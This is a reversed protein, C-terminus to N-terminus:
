AAAGEREQAGPKLRLGSYLDAYREAMAPVAYRLSRKHARQALLARESLDRTLRNIEFVWEEPDRPDAFQACGDWIERLSPIDSLVLCCRSRAAELVSLGFPEYLAPHLFISATQFKRILSSRSLHGLFDLGEVATATGGGAVEVPWLLSPAIRQLLALNKAEDSFRGAAFCFPLKERSSQEPLSAANPIVHVSAAPVGYERQLCAAMARSPAVIAGAHGLGNTVADRYWSWEAGPSCGNVARWWSYVCSHAVCVVPARWNLAAHAYGNLHVIDPEFSRELERLWAGSKEFEAEAGPMWELAFDSEVLTIGSIVLQDRQPVSPRPGMTALLVQVGRASLAAALDISYQWVGGVADATMLLKLSPKEADNVTM